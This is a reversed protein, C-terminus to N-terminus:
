LGTMGSGIGSTAGGGPGVGSGTGGCDSGSGSGVEVEVGGTDSGTAVEDWGEGSAVAPVASVECSVAGSGLEVAVDVGVISGSGAGVAVDM